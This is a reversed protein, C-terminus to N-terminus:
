ENKVPPNATPESAQLTSLRKSDIRSASPPDVRFGREERKCSVLVFFSACLGLLFVKGATKM